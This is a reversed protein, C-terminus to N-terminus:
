HLQTFISLLLNLDHDIHGVVVLDEVEVAHLTGHIGVEVYM